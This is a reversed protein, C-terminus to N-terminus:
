SSWAVHCVRLLISLGAMSIWISNDQQIRTTLWTCSPQCLHTSCFWAKDKFTILLMYQNPTSDRIVRLNTISPRNSCFHRCSGGLFLSECSQPSSIWCTQFTSTSLFPSPVCCKVACRQYLGVGILLAILSWLVCVDFCRAKYLHLIGKTVDVSPIGSFFDLQETLLPSHESVPSHTSLEGDVVCNLMCSSAVSMAHSLWKSWAFLEWYYSQANKAAWICDLPRPRCVFPRPRCNTICAAGFSSRTSSIRSMRSLFPHFLWNNTVRHISGQVAMEFNYVLDSSCKPFTCLDDIEFRLILVDPHITSENIRSPTITDEM